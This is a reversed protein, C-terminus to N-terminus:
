DPEGELMNERRREKIFRKLQVKFRKLNLESRLYEPLLNWKEASQCRWVERTLKLRPSKTWVKSDDIFQFKEEMCASVNWRLSKWLQIVSFYETLERIDLWDCRSMLETQRTSKGANLVFCQHIKDM